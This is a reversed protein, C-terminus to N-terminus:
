SNPLCQGHKLMALGRCLDIRPKWGIREAARSIDLSYLLSTRYPVAKEEKTKIRGQGAVAVCAEALEIISVPNGSSVNLTEWCEKNLAAVAADAVDAAHVIDVRDEVPQSLEIVEDRTATALFRPVMKDEGIGHGYISTPRLMCLKLGQQHLRMLVDEALLKSFGYFGGLGSWGLPASEKQLPAYPDAYVIAGSIYLLPINRRMAWQGLNLCSRVNADYMLSEDVEGSPQVYAGAHVVAQVGAFIEDLMGISQWESLDWAVSDEAGSRSVAVVEAGAIQLAARLHRGLMGSSGTLGVKNLVV